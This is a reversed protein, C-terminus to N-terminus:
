KIKFIVIKKVNEQIQNEEWKIASKIQEENKEGNINDWDWDSHHERKWNEYSNILRQRINKGKNILIVADIYNKSIDM